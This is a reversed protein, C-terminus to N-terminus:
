QTVTRAVWRPTLYDDDDKALTVFSRAMQRGNPALEEGFLTLAPDGCTSRDNPSGPMPSALAESTTSAARAAVLDSSM